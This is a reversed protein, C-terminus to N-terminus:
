SIQCNSASWASEGEPAEFPLASPNLDVCLVTTDDGMHKKGRKELYVREALALLERAAAQPTESARVIRAAKAHSCVDWLGDSALVARAHTGAGVEFRKLEPHPLVLDSGKWDM